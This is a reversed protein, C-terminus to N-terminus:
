KLAEDLLKSALQRHYEGKNAFEKRHEISYRGNVSLEEYQQAETVERIVQELKENM